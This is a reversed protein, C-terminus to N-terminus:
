LQTARLPRLSDRDLNSREGVGLHQVVEAHEARCVGLQAHRLHLCPGDDAVIAVKDDVRWEVLGLHAVRESYTSTASGQM